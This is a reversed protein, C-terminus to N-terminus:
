NWFIGEDIDVVLFRKLIKIHNYNSDGKDIQVNHHLRAIFFDIINTLEIKKGVKNKMRSNVKM